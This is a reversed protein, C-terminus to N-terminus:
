PSEELEFKSGKQYIRIQQQLSDALAANTQTSALRLAQQVTAIADAFRGKQGYAAALIQLHYADKGGSLRNAKEAYEIAQDGNRLAAKALVGALNDAALALDPQLELAKEYYTIAQKEDGQRLFVSGLNNYALADDPKIQVATQLHAIAANTEGQDLLVNAYRVHAKVFTPNIKLAEKLHQVAEDTQGADALMSGLNYHAAYNGATCALTHRWLTESTRWYSTQRHARWALAVIVLIAISGPLFPQRRWRAFLGAMGWVVLLYFGIQPLYMFRDGHTFLLGIQVIGIMPVLVGLFWLWGIVFYPSKKRLWLAVLSIGALLLFAMAAKMVPLSAELPYPYLNVLGVPWFVQRLYTVYSLVANCLRMALPSIDTGVVVEGQAYIAVVSAVGSLIFLPIKEVILRWWSSFQFGFGPIRQLPWYDLLLLVFPLTVVSPKAMLGLAFLLVVWLYRAISKARVYYVYAALMLVFFFGGLVEKREAVWAVSEANLPHIAFLMAVMASRWLTATMQHLVLFLLIATTAHILVNTLHYGGPKLGYFNHDMMLSIMTLPHYFNCDYHTFMWVVGGPTLGGTVRPNEYVYVQDDYNVFEHRLTQGFVVWVALVLCICVATKLLTERCDPAITANVKSPGTSIAEQPTKGKPKQSMSTCCIVYQRLLEFQL